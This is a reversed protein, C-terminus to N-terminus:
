FNYKLFVGVNTMTRKANNFQDLNMAVGTTIQNKRVGIKLQQLGRTYGDNSINGTVLLNIYGIYRNGFPPSYSTVITQELSFGNQYTSGGTYSFTFYPLKSIFSLSVTGFAGPNKIGIATNVRISRTLSYSITNRIFYINNDDNGYETDFLTLNDVSLKPHVTYKILHKYTVSRNGFVIDPAFNVEQGIVKAILIFYFLICISTKRGM